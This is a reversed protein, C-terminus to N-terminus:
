LRLGFGLQTQWSSADVAAHAFDAGIDIKPVYRYGSAAELFFRSTIDLTFSVQAAVGVRFETSSENLRFSRVARSQGRQHTTVRARLDTDLINLTPGVSVGVHCRDTVRFQIEPAIVIEHLDVNLQARGLAYSSSGGAHDERPPIAGAGYFNNYKRADHITGSFDDEFPFRAGPLDINTALVTHDYRYRQSSGSLSRLGSSLDAPTWSYGFLLNVDAGAWEAATYRLQVFGGPTVEDDSHLDDAVFAHFKLESLPFPIPGDLRPTPSLQSRDNVTGLATGDDFFPLGNKKFGDPGVEGDDYVVPGGRRFLGPDPTQLRFDATIQRVSAGATISWRSRGEPAPASKGDSVPTGALAPLIPLLFALTSPAIRRM